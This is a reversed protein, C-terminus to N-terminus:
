YVPLNGWLQHKHSEPPFFQESQHIEASSLQVPSAEAKSPRLWYCPQLISVRDQFLCLCSVTLTWGRCLSFTMLHDKLHLTQKHFHGSHFCKIRQSTHLPETRWSEDEPFWSYGCCIYFSVFSHVFCFDVQLIHCIRLNKFGRCYCAPELWLWKFGTKCRVRFGQDGSCWLRHQNPSM